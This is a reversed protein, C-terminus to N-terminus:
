PLVSLNTPEPHAGAATLMAHVQGRHHTQHNFLEAACLAKPVEMRSSGDGPYWVLTGIFDTDDLGAAWASIDTDRESRLAKFETWDSPEILSHIITEEPRENGKLRELILADAWYLHNLTAATSQFFAGRDQRRQASTLGNAATVLSTNQWANYRALLRCYEASIM